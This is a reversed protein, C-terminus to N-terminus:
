RRFAERVALAAPKPRGGYTFLGKQNIGRVLAIGPVLRRISGGAFAPSVAFDRLAWVLAGALRPTSGYARLHARLRAAQFALGGPRGGANRGNGEAGFESVVLVKRPFVRRLRALDRRVEREVTAASARTKSYWGTYNTVGVADAGRWVSGARKPPHAGWLDLAVLRGPDRRHLERQLGRLYRVQGADHGNGALENVLNWALVSPHAQAQRVSRLARRRAARRMAPTKSTWAGPADVPGIGLWVLIGAADLRELLGPDLQHQSRTANAGLWALDDVLRQQDAPALADGRGPAEEHLSAGRLALPAGNLRLRGGDWTLERLGIRQRWGADDATLALLYLSPSGPAWLAPAPVVVTTRVSRTAGAPVTVAPWTVPIVEDGRTLSGEVTIARAGSARNRVVAGLDVAAAGDPRRRTRVTIGFLETRGEPRVTVERNIGGFNFWTRHWGARKMRLPGRWDARVVLRHRVGATLPVRVEFPLYTGTHRAVRRGDLWVTARHNVSEFRLVYRGSRAVVLDRRYWAVSGNHSRVGAAGVVTRANPVYPVAVPTGPFRGRSWGRRVGRDSPDRAVLWGQRLAARADPGAFTGPLDGGAVLPAPARDQAGAAAPLAVLLAAILAGSAPFRLM